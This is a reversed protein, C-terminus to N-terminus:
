RGTANLLTEFLTHVVGVVQAAAQYAQQYRIMNAAEEDLNVASTALYADEANQLVVDQAELNSQVQHATSGVGAVLEGYSSMISVTGGDLINQSQLEGLRLGNRNDGSAGFNPELTFRDGARPAGSITFESGNVVIPDGDVYAFPGSGDVTYTAPGTFDIVAATLLNPDNVDVISPASISADGLNQNSALTRTPGALAISQPDAVLVALSASADVSPRILLDDGAAPAGGVTISLGEAVFPDAVTGTGTMPVVQGTSSRSLSYAAGDYSLVYDDGTLAGLDSIDAAATGSGTNLASTLVSPGDIGFFPQGVAGRLDMGAAHQANFAEALAAASRGLSQRTPDLMRTRFDMLGGLTGGTMNAGIPTAGHPGEYVVELRTPDFRTGQVGLETVETGVVLSQGSGIFVNLTGDDQLITSVSVEESLDRVLADRQDLLDNPQRATLGGSLAIKDNIQAISDALRNINEVSQSVRQSVEGDIQSLQQDLTRFRQAVGEAEGLLAQRASISGPDNAVDQVSQFFSQLGANLGTTPDALLSDLRGALTSLTAFRAQGTTATRLQDTLMQDYVRKITTVQVGSGIYGVGVDQGGRTAFEAVQRTYGPTNANAINHGTLELARQFALMGTLSTRLLDPV